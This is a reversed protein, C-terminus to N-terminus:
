AAGADAARELDGIKKRRQADAFVDPEGHLRAMRAAEIGDGVRQRDLRDVGLGVGGDAIEAEGADLLGFGAHQGIAALAQEVHAHREGGRRAHQQQVLREGPKGRRLALADAGNDLADRRIQRHQQDLVVDVPHKLERVMDRDHVFAPHQDVARDLIRAGAGLHLFDIDAGAGGRDGGLRAFGGGLRRRQKVTSM